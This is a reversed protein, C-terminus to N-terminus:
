AKVDGNAGEMEKGINGLREGASMHLRNQETALM